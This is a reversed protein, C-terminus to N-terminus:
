PNKKERQFEYPVIRKKMPEGNEDLHESSDTPAQYELSVDTKVQCNSMLGLMAILMILAIITPFHKSNM